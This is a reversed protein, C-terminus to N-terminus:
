STLRGQKDPRLWQLRLRHYRVLIPPPLRPTGCNFMASISAAIPSVLEPKPQVHVPEDFFRQGDRQLPHIRPDM